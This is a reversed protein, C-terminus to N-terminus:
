PLTNLGRRLGLTMYSGVKKLTAATTAALLTLEVIQGVTYWSSASDVGLFEFPIQITASNALLAPAVVYTGIDAGSHFRWAVTLATPATAGCLVTLSGRLLPWYSGPTTAAYATTTTIGLTESGGTLTVDSAPIYQADLPLESDIGYINGM